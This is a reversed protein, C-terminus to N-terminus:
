DAVDQITPSNGQAGGRRVLAARQREDGIDGRAVEAEVGALDEVSQRLAFAGAGGPDTVPHGYRVRPQGAQRAHAADEYSQLTGDGEVRHVFLRDVEDERQEGM